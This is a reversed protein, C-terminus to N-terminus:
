GLDPRHIQYIYAVFFSFIKSTLWYGFWSRMPINKCKAEKRTFCRSGLILKDPEELSKKACAVIDRGTHQGDGDVTICAWLEQDTGDM